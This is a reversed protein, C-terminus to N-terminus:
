EIAAAVVRPPGIHKPTITRFNQRDHLSTSGDLMNESQLLLNLREAGMEEALEFLQSVLTPDRNIAEVTVHRLLNLYQGELTM